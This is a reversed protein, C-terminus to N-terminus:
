NAAIAYRSFHTTTGEIYKLQKNLEQGALEWIGEEEDYYWIKLSDEDVGTLDADKYSLRILVPNNFLSGHPSFEAAFNNSDWWFGVNLDASLDGPNFTIRSIGTSDDGVEISGGDAVTILQSVEFVKGLFPNQSKLFTLEGTTRKHVKTSNPQVPASNECSSLTFVFATGAVFTMLKKIIRKM